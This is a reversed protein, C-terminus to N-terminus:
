RNTSEWPQWTLALLTLNMPLLLPLTSCQEARFDSWQPCAETSCLESEESKGQCVKGGNAPRCAILGM